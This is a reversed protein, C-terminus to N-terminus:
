PKPEHYNECYTLRRALDAELQRIRGAQQEIKENVFVGPNRASIADILDWQYPHSGYYVPKEKYFDNFGFMNKIEKEDGTLATQIHMEALRAAEHCIDDRLNSMFYDKMDDHMRQVIREHMTDCLKKVLDCEPQELDKIQNDIVERLKNEYSSVYM